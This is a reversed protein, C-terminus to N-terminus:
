PPIFRRDQYDNLHGSHILIAFEPMKAYAFAECETQSPLPAVLLRIRINGPLGISRISAPSTRMM